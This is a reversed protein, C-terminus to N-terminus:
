KPEFEDFLNKRRNLIAALIIVILLTHSDQGIRANYDGVVLHKNDIKGMLHNKSLAM